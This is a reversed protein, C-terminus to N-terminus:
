STDRLSITNLYVYFYNKLCFHKWSFFFNHGENYNQLFSTLKKLVFVTNKHNYVFV